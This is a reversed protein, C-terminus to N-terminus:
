MVDYAKLHHLQSSLDVVSAFCDISLCLCLNNLAHSLVLWQCCFLLRQLSALAQRTSEFGAVEPSFEM